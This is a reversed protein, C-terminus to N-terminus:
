TDRVPSSVMTMGSLEKLYRRSCTEVLIGQAYIGYNMFYDDHELALHYLTVLGSVPYITTRTDVCAPLRYKGDTVYINGLVLETQKRQHEKFADVLFSHCGTVVLEEQNEVMEPYQEKHCVYLQDKNRSDLLPHHRITKKGIGHIPVFGHKLTKVLNGPRLDQISVYGLDTLIMTDEKFCTIPLSFSFIAGFDGTGGSSMTGYLVHNQVVLTDYAYGYPGFSNVVTFTNTTTDISYLVCSDTTLGGQTTIGYLLPTDDKILGGYPYAGNGSVNSTFSHLTTFTVGDDTISYVVGAGYTGGTITTGYFLGNFYLLESYPNAGSTNISDGDVAPFSYLVTFVSSDLNFSFISGTANAGNNSATGYLTRGRAVLASQSHGGDGPRFTYLLTFTNNSLDYEYLTGQNSAGCSSTTGYVKSGLLLPSGTPNCGNEDAFNFNVLVNLTSPLTLAYLVGSNYIGGSITTGILRDSGYAVVGSQPNNGDTGTFVYLVTYESGDAAMSFITGFGTDDSTTTGYFLGDAALLRGYPHIGNNPMTNFDQFLINM